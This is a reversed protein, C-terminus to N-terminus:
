AVNTLRKSTKGNSPPYIAQAYPKLQRICYGDRWCEVQILVGSRTCGPCTRMVPPFVCSYSAIRSPKSRRRVSPSPTNPRRAITMMTTASLMLALDIATPRTTAPRLSPLDRCRIHERRYNIFVCRHSYDAKGAQAHVALPVESDETPHILAVILFNILSSYTDELGMDILGIVVLEFM